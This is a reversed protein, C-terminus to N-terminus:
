REKVYKYGNLIITDINELKDPELEFEIDIDRLQVRFKECNTITLTQPKVSSIAKGVATSSYRTSDLMQAQVSSSLIYHCKECREIGGLLVVLGGCIPCTKNLYRLNM